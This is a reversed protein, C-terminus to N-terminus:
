KMKKLIAKAVGDALEEFNDAIKIGKGEEKSPKEPAPSGFPLMNMPLIPVKGWEVEEEGQKKRELNISSYGTKLKSEQEKLKFDRDEPICDDFACFINDDEYLRMLQENMKQEYLKLKPDVTDRMYQKYAVTANALNSKDPSLLPMPVGLGDAIEERTLKRGELHNLDKPKISIPKFKM